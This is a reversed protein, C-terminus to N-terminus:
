LKNRVTEDREPRGKEREKLNEDSKPKKRLTRIQGSFVGCKQKLMRCVWQRGRREAADDAVLDAGAAGLQQLVNSDVDLGRHVLTRDAVLQEFRLRMKLAVDVVNMRRRTSRVDAVDINGRKTAAM